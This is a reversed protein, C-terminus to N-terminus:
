IRSPLDGTLKISFLSITFIVQKLNVCLLLLLELYRPMLISDPAPNSYQIRLFKGSVEMGERKWLPSTGLIVGENVFHKTMSRTGQCM